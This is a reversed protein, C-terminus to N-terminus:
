HLIGFLLWIIFLALVVWGLISLITKICGGIEIEETRIKGPRRVTWWKASSRAWENHDTRFDRLEKEKQEHAENAILHKDRKKSM